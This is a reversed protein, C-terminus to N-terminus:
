KPFVSGAGTPVVVSSCCCCPRRLLLASIRWSVLELSILESLVTVDGERPQVGDKASAELVETAPTLALVLPKCCVCPADMVVSVADPTDVKADEGELMLMLVATAATRPDLTVGPEPSADASALGGLFRMLVGRRLAEARIFLKFPPDTVVLLFLLLAATVSLTLETSLLAVIGFEVRATVDEILVM